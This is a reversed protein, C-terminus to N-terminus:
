MASFEICASYAYVVCRSWNRMQEDIEDIQREATAEEQEDQIIQQSQEAEEKIARQFREWEEEVPDRYEVNRAQLLVIDCLCCIVISAFLTIQTTTKCSVKADMKPDDFFGEPLIETAAPPEPKRPKEEVVEDDGEAKPLKM